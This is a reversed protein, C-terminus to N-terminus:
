PLREQENSEIIITLKNSDEQRAKKRLIVKVQSFLEQM